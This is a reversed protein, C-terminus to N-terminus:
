NVALQKVQSLDAAAPLIAIAGKVSSVLNLADTADSANKPQDGRGSFVLRQWHTRFASASMGTIEKIAEDDFDKIVVIVVPDGNGWYRTKGTFIEQLEKSNLADIQLDPNCVVAVGDAARGVSALMIFVAIFSFTRFIQKM